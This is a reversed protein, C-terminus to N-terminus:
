STSGFLSLMDRSIEYFEMDNDSEARKHRLNLMLSIGIYIM